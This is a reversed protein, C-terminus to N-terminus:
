GRTYGLYYELPFRCREYCNEPVLAFFHTNHSLALNQTILFPKSLLAPLNLDPDEAASLLWSFPLHSFAKLALAIQQRRLCIVKQDWRGKRQAQFWFSLYIPWSEWPPPSFPWFAPTWLPFVTSKAPRSNMSFNNSQFASSYRNPTM